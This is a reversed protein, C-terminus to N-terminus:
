TLTNTLIIQLNIVKRSVKQKLFLSSVPRHEKQIEEGRAGKIFFQVKRM